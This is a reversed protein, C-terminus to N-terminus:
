LKSTALETMYIAKTPCVEVCEGCGTCKSLDISAKSEEITIADVPCIEVCKGCAICGVECMKRTTAGSQTCNCGVVVLKKTDEKLDLLDILDRPCADVCLGCGICKSINIQPRGEVMEIASVPCVKACDGLGLCGEFCTFGSSGLVDAALCSGFGRYTAIKTKHIERANCKLRAKETRKKIASNKGLVKGIEKTMGEAGVKCGDLPAEGQMLSKAFDECSAYGCAGCNLGPLIELIKKLRPDEEIKLKRYALGLGLALIGGLGAMVMVSTLLLNLDKM